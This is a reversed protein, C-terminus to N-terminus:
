LSYAPMTEHNIPDMSPCNYLLSKSNAYEIDGIALFMAYDECDMLDQEAMSFEQSSKVKPFDIDSNIPTM